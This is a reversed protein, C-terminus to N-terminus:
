CRQWNARAAELKSKSTLYAVLDILDEGKEGTAFDSWVGNRNMKFTGPSADRRTPNRIVYESGEWRGGALYRNLVLEISACSQRRITMFDVRGNFMGGGEIDSWFREKTELGTREIRV